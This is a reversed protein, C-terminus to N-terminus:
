PVWVNVIANLREKPRYDVGWSGAALALCLGWGLLKKVLGMPRPRFERRETEKSEVLRGEVM